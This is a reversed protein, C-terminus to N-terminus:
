QNKIWTETEPAVNSKKKLVIYLGNKKDM